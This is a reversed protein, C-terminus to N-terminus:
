RHSASGPASAEVTTKDSFGPQTSLVPSRRMSMRTHAQRLALKGCRRAGNYLACRTHKNAVM